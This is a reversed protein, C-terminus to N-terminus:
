TGQYGYVISPGSYGSWNEMWQEPFRDKEFFVYVTQEKTWNYFINYGMIQVNRPIVISKIGKCNAFAREEIQIVAQPITFDTLSTCNGFCFYGIKQLKSTASINITKLSACDYFTYSSLETVTDPLTFSSLAICGEFAENGIVQLQSTESIQVETLATCYYFSSEGLTTVGAPIAIKELGSYSFVGPEIIKLSNPLTVAALSACSHFAASGIRKVGEPFTVTTLNTCQAFAAVGIREVGQPLYIFKLNKCNEFASKWIEKVGLPVAYTANKKSPLYYTLKEGSKDFLVNDKTSFHLSNEPATLEEIGDTRPLNVEEVIPSLEVKKLYLSSFCSAELVPLYEEDGRAKYYAPLILEEGIDTGGSAIYYKENKSLEYTITGEYLTAGCHDCVNEGYVNQTLCHCNEASFAAPKDPEDKCAALGGALAGLMGLSLLTLLVKKM